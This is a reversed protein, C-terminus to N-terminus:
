GPEEEVDHRVGARPGRGLNAVLLSIVTVLYLQGLLAESAALMRGLNAAPTFDGFGVTTLTIFSFYVYASIHPEPDQGFFPPNVAGIAAYLYAFFLGILLYLCAAGLVTPVSVVAHRLLRNVIAIPAVFALVAGLLPVLWAIEQTRGTVVALIALAVAGIGGIRVATVIAPRAESTTLVFILTIASLALAVVQGWGTDVSFEVIITALILILATGYRDVGAIRLHRADSERWRSSM